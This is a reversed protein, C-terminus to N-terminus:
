LSESAFGMLARFSDLAYASRNTAAYALMMRGECTAWEGGNVWTGYQWLWSSSAPYEMDDLGAANTIVLSFPRLGPGGTQPNPPVSAGLLRAMIAESLGPRVRDAIGFAVADHNVVAEIYGHAAQPCHRHHPPPRRLAGWEECIGRHVGHPM